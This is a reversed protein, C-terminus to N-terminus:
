AARVGSWWAAFGRLGELLPVQQKFGLSTLKTIDFFQSMTTLQPTGSITKSNLELISCLQSNLDELTLSKGTAITYVRETSKQLILRVAQLVDASHIIDRTATMDYPISSNTGQPGLLNFLLNYVSNNRVAPGYADAVRLITSHLTHVNRYDELISEAMLSYRGNMTVPNPVTQESTPNACEGYVDVSSLLVIRSGPSQRRVAECLMITKDVVRNFNSIPWNECSERHPAANAHLIIDPALASLASAFRGDTLSFPITTFNRKTAVATEMDVTQVSVQVAESAFGHALYKALTNDVGTILLKGSFSNSPTNRAASNSKFSIM